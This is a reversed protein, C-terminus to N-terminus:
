TEAKGAKMLCIKLSSLNPEKICAGKGNAQSYLLTCLVHICHFEIM